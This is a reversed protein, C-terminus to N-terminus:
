ANALKFLTELTVNHVVREIEGIHNTRLVTIGDLAEQSLPFRSLTRM